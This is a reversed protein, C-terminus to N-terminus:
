WCREDLRKSREHEEAEQLSNLKTKHMKYVGIGALHIVMDAM